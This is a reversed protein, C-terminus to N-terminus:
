SVMCVELFVTEMFTSQDGGSEIYRDYIEIVDKEKIGHQYKLLAQHVILLMVKLPPMANSANTIVDLMNRGIKNEIEIINSATLKLKYSEDAFEWVVYPKVEKAESM